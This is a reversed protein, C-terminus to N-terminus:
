AHEKPPEYVLQGDVLVYRVGDHPGGVFTVGDTDGLDIEIEEGDVPGGIFKM